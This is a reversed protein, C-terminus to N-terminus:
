QFTRQIQIFYVVADTIVDDCGVRLQRRIVADDADDAAADHPEDSRWRGDDDDDDAPVDRGRVRREDDHQFVSM